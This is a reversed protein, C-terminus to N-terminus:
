KAHPIFKSKHRSDRRQLQVSMFGRKAARTSRIYVLSPTQLLQVNETQESVVLSMQSGLLGFSGAGFGDCRKNKRARAHTHTGIYRHM